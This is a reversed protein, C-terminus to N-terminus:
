SAVRGLVVRAAAWVQPVSVGLEDAVVEPEDGAKVMAAVDAVRTRSGEFFPQGFARTPDVVVKHPEFTRLALMSPYGDDGRTIYQLYDQVVARMVGQGTRGEILGDGANSRSFDWLVDIGDTALEPAALVYEHGFERQLRALAPRIKEPRVGAARLAELIYAETLAMFTVRARRPAAPLVHLLPVGHENGSAWRRFTSTAIGLYQAADSMNLLGMATRIDEM